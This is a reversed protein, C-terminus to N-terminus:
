LLTVLHFDFSYKGYKVDIEDVEMDNGCDEVRPLKLQFEPPYSLLSQDATTPASTSPFLECQESFLSKISETLENEEANM